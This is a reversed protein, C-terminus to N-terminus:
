ITEHKVIKDTIDEIFKISKSCIESSTGKIYEVNALIICKWLEVRINKDSKWQEQVSKFASYARELTLYSHIMGEEIYVIKTNFFDKLKRRRIKGEAELYPMKITTYTFPTIYNMLPKDSSDRLVIKYVTIDTRDKRLSPDITYMCM